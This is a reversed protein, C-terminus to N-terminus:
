IMISVGSGFGRQEPSGGGARSLSVMWARVRKRDAPSLATFQIGSRHRKGNEKLEQMWMVTGALALDRGPAPIRCLVQAGVPLSEESLVRMGGESADQGTGALSAQEAQLEISFTARLRAFRRRQIHSVLKPQALLIAPQGGHSTAGLVTTEFQYWGDPMPFGVTVRAGFPLTVPTQKRHPAAVALSAPHKALLRSSLRGQVQGGPHEILLAQGPEPSVLTVAPVRCPQRVFGGRVGRLLVEVVVEPACPKVLYAQAGAQKAREELGPEGRKGTVVMPLARDAQRVVEVVQLGDMTILDTDVVAGHFSRAKLINIASAGDSVVEVAHGRAELESQLRRAFGYDADAVLIRRPKKTM